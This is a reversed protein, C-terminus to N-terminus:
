EAGPPTSGTTPTNQQSVPQYGHDNTQSNGSSPSQPQYGRGGSTQDGSQEPKWGKNIREQSV